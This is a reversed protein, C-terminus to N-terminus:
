CSTPRRPTSNRIPACIIRPLRSIARSDTQKMTDLMEAHIHAVEDLGLQHIADPDMDLTTYELIKARYYAKGDPFRNRPSRDDGRM